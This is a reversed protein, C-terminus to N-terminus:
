HSLWMCYVEFNPLITTFENGSFMAELQVMKLYLALAIADKAAIDILMM